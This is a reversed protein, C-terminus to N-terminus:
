INWNIPSRETESKMPEFLEEPIWERERAARFPGACIYADRTIHAASGLQALVAAEEPANMWGQPFKKPSYEDTMDCRDLHIQFRPAGPIKWLDDIWHGQKVQERLQGARQMWKSHMTPAAEQLAEVLDGIRIGDERRLRRLFAYTGRWSLTGPDFHYIGLSKCPPYAIQMSKIAELLLANSASADVLLTHSTARPRLSIEWRGLHQRFCGDSFLSEFYSNIRFQSLDLWYLEADRSVSSVQIRSYDRQSVDLDNLMHAVTDPLGPSQAFYAPFYIYKFGEANSRVDLRRAVHLGFQATDEAGPQLPGQGEWDIINGYETPTCHPLSRLANVNKLSSIVAITSTRWATSVLLAQIQAKPGAIDLIMDLLEPIQFLKHETRQCSRQNNSRLMHDQKQTQYLAIRAEVRYGVQERWQEVALQESPSYLPPAITPENITDRWLNLNRYIGPQRTKNNPEYISFLFDEKADQTPIEEEFYTAIWSIASGM